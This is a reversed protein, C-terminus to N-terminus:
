GGKIKSCKEGKKLGFSATKVGNEMCKKRM